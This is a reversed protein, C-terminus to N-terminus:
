PHVTVKQVSLRHKYRDLVENVKDANLGDVVQFAMPKIKGTELYESVRKWFPTCLDAKAHSSGFVDMVELWAMRGEFRKVNIEGDVLRALKGRRTHSLADMALSQGEPGNVADLAYVLEDGVCEKVRELVDGDHRDVVDTAGYARLEKDNGKGAVVVIRGLGMLRAVQVAFKGCSSGGGVVLLMQNGYDFEAEDGEVLVWPPPFGLGCGRDCLGVVAAILATPLTAAEDDSMGDPVRACCAEDLVCYEQLGNQTGGLTTAAQGFVREGIRFRSASVGSGIATVTGVVDDGLVTPLSGCASPLFLGTDRTLQDVPNLGAATIRVQIQHQSPLPIPLTSLILPKGIEALILANQRNSVTAPDSM